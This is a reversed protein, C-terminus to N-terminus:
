LTSASIRSPIPMHLVGNVADIVACIKGEPERDACKGLFFTRAVPVLAWFWRVGCKKFLPILSVSFLIETLIDVNNYSGFLLLKLIQM